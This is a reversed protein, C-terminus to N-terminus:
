VVSATSAATGAPITVTGSKVYTQIALALAQALQDNDTDDRPDLTSLNKIATVLGADALAM